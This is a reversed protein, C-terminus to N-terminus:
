AYIQDRYGDRADALGVIRDGARDGAVDKERRELEGDLLVFDLDRFGTGLDFSEALFEAVEFDFPGDVAVM